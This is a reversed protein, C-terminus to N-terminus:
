KVGSFEFFMHLYPFFHILRCWFLVTWFFILCPEEHTRPRPTVRIFPLPVYPTAFFTTVHMWCYRINHKPYFYFEQCCCSTNFVAVYFLKHFAACFFHASSHPKQMVVSQQQVGNVLLLFKSYVFILQLLYAPIFPLLYVLFITTSDPGLILALLVLNDSSRFRLAPFHNCLVSSNNLTLERGVTFM